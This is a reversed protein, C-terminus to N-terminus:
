IPRQTGQACSALWCGFMDHYRCYNADTEAGLHERCTESVSAEVADRFANDYADAVATRIDCMAHAAADTGREVEDLSESAGFVDRELDRFSYGDAWEGSLDPSPLSDWIAPDGCELGKWLNVYTLNDTNGDTVWSAANRGHETGISAAATEATRYLYDTITKTDM